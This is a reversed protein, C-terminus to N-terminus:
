EEIWTGVKSFYGEGDLFAMRSGNIYKEIVSLLREDKYWNPEAESMPFLGSKIFQMTDSVDGRETPIRIIGNHVIGLKTTGDIKHMTKFSESLPFPHTNGETNGGHTGIRFHMIVTKDVLKNYSTDFFLNTDFDNFTMFGKHYEVKGKGNNYMYGAGDPNRLFMTKLTEYKPFQVGMPKICIICM